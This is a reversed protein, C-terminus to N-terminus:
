TLSNWGGTVTKLEIANIQTTDSAFKTTGVDTTKCIEKLKIIRRDEEKGFGGHEMMMTVNGLYGDGNGYDDGNGEYDWEGNGWAELYDDDGYYNLANGIGKGPYRDGGKLASVDGHKAIEAM